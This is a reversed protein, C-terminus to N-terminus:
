IHILSLIYGAINTTTMAKQMKEIVESKKYGSFSRRIQKGNLDFGLTVRGTWYKKGNVIRYTLSGLGNPNKEKM